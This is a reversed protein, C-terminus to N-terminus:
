KLPIERLVLKGPGGSVKFVEVTNEGQRFASPPLVASFSQWRKDKFESVTTGVIVGNLAVVLNQSSRVGRPPSVAGRVQAPLVAADLDVNQLADADKIRSRWGKGPLLELDETSRGCLEAHRGFCYISDPDSGDGFLRLKRNVFGRKARLLSADIEVAGRRKTLVRLSKANPGEGDVRSVGDMPWPMEEGLLELITPLVDLTSVRRGVVRGETQHPAKIILPVPLVGHANKGSLVRPDEGPTFAIGHDAVLVILTDDFRGSERLGDILRGIVTDVYMTQLILRQLGLAIFRTDSCWSERSLCPPRRGGTPYLRGDPLLEWPRHPLMLHTYYLESDAPASATKVFADFKPRRDQRVAQVARKFFGKQTKPGESPSTAAVGGAFGSWGSSIPPLREEWAHPLVLHLYV